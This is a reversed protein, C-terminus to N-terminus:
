QPIRVLKVLVGDPTQGALHDLGVRDFNALVAGDGSLVCVAPQQGNGTETGVGLRCELRANADSADLRFGDGDVTSLQQLEFVRPAVNGTAEGDGVLVWRGAWSKGAPTAQFPARALTLARVGVGRGDDQSRLLFASAQAPGHFEIALSPGPEAVPRSGAAAFGDDGGHLRVLDIQTSRGSLAASGFYWVAAGSDDFSMLSAAIHDGQREIGIGTGTLAPSDPADVSWWFGSEPLVNVQPGSLDLLQFAALRAANNGQSLYVRVRYVARALRVPTTGAVAFNQRYSTQAATCPAQTTHAQITLDAGDLVASDVRPTCSDTWTGSLSLVPASFLQHSNGPPVVRVDLTGSGAAMAVTAGCLAVVSFLARWYARPSRSGTRM